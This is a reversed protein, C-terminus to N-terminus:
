PVKPGAHPPEEKKSNKNDAIIAGFFVGVLMVAAGAFMEVM